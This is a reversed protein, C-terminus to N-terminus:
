TSLRAAITPETYKQAFQDAATLGEAPDAVAAATQYDAFEEKTKAQPQGHRQAATLGASSQASQPPTTGKPQAPTQGFACATALFLFAAIFVKM